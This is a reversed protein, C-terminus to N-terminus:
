YCNPTLKPIAKNVENFTNKINFILQQLEVLKNQSFYVDLYSKINSYLLRNWKQMLVSKVYNFEKQVRQNSLNECQGYTTYLRTLDLDKNDVPLSLYLYISTECVWKYKDSLNREKYNGLEKDWWPMNDRGKNSTWAVLSNIDSEWNEKFKTSILLPISWDKSNAQETIFKRWLQWKEEPALGYMLDAWNDNEEKADLRRM